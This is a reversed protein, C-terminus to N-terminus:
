DRPRGRSAGQRRALFFFGVLGILAFGFWQIAYALHPGEDSFDPPDLAIPLQNGDGGAVVYVDVLEYSIQAGIRQIDVRNFVDVDGQPEEAGLPPKAQSLHIWGEIEVLGPEPAAPVPPTDMLLPVWGRNVLTAPTGDGSLPTIVHFGAQGLEVQSRILVEENADYVGRLTVPRFEISAPDDGAEVLIDELPVPDAALRQAGVENSARREDLRQLQWFGLRIFVGALLVVVLGAVVWKPQRATDLM